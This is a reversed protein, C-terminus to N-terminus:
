YYDAIWETIYKQQAKPYGYRYFGWAKTNVYKFWLKQALKDIKNEIEFKRTPSLLPTAANQHYTLWWKRQRSAIHHSLEHFFAALMRNKKLKGNIYLTSTSMNYSGDIHKAKHGFRMKKVGLRTALNCMNERLKKKTTYKTNFLYVKQHTRKM